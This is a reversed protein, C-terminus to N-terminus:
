RVINGQRMMIADIMDTYDERRYANPTIKVNAGYTGHLQDLSNLIIYEGPNKKIYSRAEHYNFALIFVKSVM